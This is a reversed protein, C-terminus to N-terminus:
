PSVSLSPSCLTIKKQLIQPRNELFHLDYHFLHLQTWTRWQLKKEACRQSSRLVQQLIETVCMFLPLLFRLLLYLQIVMECPHISNLRFFPNSSYFFIRWCLYSFNCWCLFFWYCRTGLVLFFFDDNASSDNLFVQPFFQLM